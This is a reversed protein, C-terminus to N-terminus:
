LVQKKPKTDRFRNMASVIEIARKAASQDEPGRKCVVCLVEGSARFVTVTEEDGQWYFCGEETM